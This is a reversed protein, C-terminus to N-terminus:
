YFNTVGRACTLVYLHFYTTDHRSFNQFDNLIGLVVREPVLGFKRSLIKM